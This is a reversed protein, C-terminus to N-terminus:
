VNLIRINIADEKNIFYGLHIQKGNIKIYARWKQNEETWRVGKTGSKNNKYLLRNQNNQSKTVWRLNALKNNLKNNDIHDVEQKNEQNPLFAQAVLRHINKTHTEKSLCLNSSLYGSSNLGAKLTRGTKDNRVNGHDSVSYNKFGDIKKFIEIM